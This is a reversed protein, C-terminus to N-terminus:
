RRNIPQMNERKTPKYTLLKTYKQLLKKWYCDITSMRLKKWIFDRGRQAIKRSIEDNDRAFKILRELEQKSADKSVPIYHIWPKMASYYFETWEDGVHFVLSNCLFLHKHRFSAAVGRYNFLYKYKCHNELSVEPAPPRHLTDEDSKWAQNKTYQADVLEPQERSLLILNDREFSTRSGRFFAQSKKEDWPNEQSAKDLSKRHQDWRGLGRPYLSIAPGGEWFSWAPYTIDYYEPTKSFSFIPLATGFHRSSQPYDRTNILFETDTVNAVIKNIFHEIGACRSPFMCEKSRFLEGNIIQYISGRSLSYDILKKSIGDSKFPELDQSIVDTFCGCKKAECEKYDDEARTILDYYDKYNNDLDSLEEYQKKDSCSPKEISCFEEETIVFTNTTFLLIIIPLKFIDMNVVM